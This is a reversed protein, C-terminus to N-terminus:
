TLERIEVWMIINRKNILSSRLGAQLMVNNDNLCLLSYCQLLGNM